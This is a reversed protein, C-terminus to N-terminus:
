FIAVLTESIKSGNSYENIEVDTEGQIASLVHYPEREPCNQPIVIGFCCYSREKRYKCLLVGPDKEKKKKIKPNDSIPILIM